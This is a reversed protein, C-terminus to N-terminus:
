TGKSYLCLSRLLRSFLTPMIEQFIGLSRYISMTSLLNGGPKNEAAEPRMQGDDPAM